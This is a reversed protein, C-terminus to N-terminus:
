KTEKTPADALAADREGLVGRLESGIFAPDCSLNLADSVMGVVNRAEDREGEARALSARAADLTLWVRDVAWPALWGPTEDLVPAVGEAHSGCKERWEREEEPTLPKANM